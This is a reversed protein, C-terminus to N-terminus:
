EPVPGIPNEQAFDMAALGEIQQLKEIRAVGTREGGDM